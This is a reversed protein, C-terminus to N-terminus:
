IYIGKLGQADLRMRKPSHKPTPTGPRKNRSSQGSIMVDAEDM